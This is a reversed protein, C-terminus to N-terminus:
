IHLPHPTIELPLITITNARTSSYSVYHWTRKHSYDFYVSRVVINTSLLHLLPQASPLERWLLHIAMSFFSKNASALNIFHTFDNAHVAQKFALEVIALLCEPILAMSLSVDRSVVIYQLPPQAIM